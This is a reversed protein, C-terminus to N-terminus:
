LKEKIEKFLKDLFDNFNMEGLIKNDRTRINLTNNDMEKNGIVVIYNVKSLEANRIKKNFSDESLDLEVRIDKNLFSRYLTKCYDIVSDNVPVIKIQVPSLWLPFKGAYHEILIGIFREISGFVTRHLMIPRHDMTGDKDMYRLDFREPLNFDLQITGCQWTRNMCDKVHFDIKPGYFAGDGPNLKYDISKKELISKLANEAHDWDEIKGIFKDEPRTSLEIEVNNFGFVKYMDFVLDIVKGIEEELQNPLCYIHADDQTFMRVRFLGHLVGTLEHRHVLGLESVRIPFEKYSHLRNKYILIGGPCNMPKIAFDVDDIKTLYMNEKYNKWHGSTEWLARNLMIPTRVEEYDHKHKERWFDILSNMLVMGKNHWFPFGPGEEHFSFLDLQKGIKRHDRKEAERLFDLYSKLDSKSYFATGYIRTLMKNKSDGRWYAGALKMLKVAKVFGTNPVHPGKCLDTFEGITYTSIVEDSGLGQILELKYPEDKFLELAKERSIIQKKFMLKEHIISKMEKEIKTFDDVSVKLNDFDYYFGEDTAPGISIKVGPYLKKVAYALIHAASHRLVRKADDDEFSLLEVVSDKDLKTTLDCVVGDVRMAIIDQKNLDKVIDLGSVGKDYNKESGDSFSIKISEM